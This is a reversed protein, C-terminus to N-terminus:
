GPTPCAVTETAAVNNDEFCEEITGTGSEAADVTAYYNKPVEAPAPVPWVFQVFAGPLLPADTMETGIQTGSSDTGEWLTVPIGAPIGISGENRITVSIEFEEDLCNQLGVAVDISLDPANFIGEGQANQRFNNLGPQLWNPDEAVPPIASSTANTVHYTHQPWVARTRVWRDNADGYVFVGQRVEYGPIGACLEDDTGASIVVFESNGDDDVDAVVPYEHITPSSNEVQAVVTGTAGDYIWAYCEDQYLVEAVGDGQFDFVSSGTVNSSLDQTIAFWRVYADGPGPPLDGQPQVVDEGERNFDYVAYATAGAVGVEPRGDGDFDAVTPPGGRGVAGGLGDAALTIEPTRAADNGACAAGTPDRGCWLEGTASDLIRLTGDCSSCAAGVLIVEPTGNADLDAIAPYGDVGGATWLQTVDVDPNGIAPNTWSVDFAERGTVIEYDGDGDLDAATGMSGVYSNQGGFVGSGLNLENNFADSVVLGDHDYLAIGVAFETEPDDDMNAALVSANRVYVYHDMGSTNRSTWIHNAQGDIAHLLSRNFVSANGSPLGAYIIDALGNGDVDGLAPTARMYARFQNNAPDDGTRAKETGSNGELIVIDGEFSTAVDRTQIIVETDNGGDVDGILPMTHSADDTWSWELTLEIDTFDPVIECTVPDQSPLCQGLTPECFEGDPCDYSDLCAQGPTVCEPQLCVQGSECCVDLVEGCRVGSECPALCMGLVCEDGAECCEDGCQITECTPVPPGSTSTSTDPSASTETTPDGTSSTDPDITTTLTTPDVTTTGDDIVEDRDDRCGVACLAIAYLTAPKLRRAVSRSSFTRQSLRM